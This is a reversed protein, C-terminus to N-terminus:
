GFKLKRLSKSMKPKKRKRKIPSQKNDCKICIMGEATFVLDKYPIERSCKDCQNSSIRLARRDPGYIQVGDILLHPCHRIHCKDGTTHKPGLGCKM